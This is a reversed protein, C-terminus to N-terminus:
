FMDLMPQLHNKSASTQKCTFIASHIHASYTLYHALVHQGILTLNGRVPHNNRARAHLGALTAQIYAFLGEKLTDRPVESPQEPELPITDYKKLYHGRRAGHANAFEQTKRQNNEQRKGKTEQEDFASKEALLVALGERGHAHAARGARQVWSSLDQPTKWQVVVDVDPINCGMGAADTCVLVRIYGLNFLEMVEKRYRQSM